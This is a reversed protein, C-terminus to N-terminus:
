DEFEGEHNVRRLAKELLARSLAKRYEASARIDSGVQVVKEMLDCADKSVDKLNKGMLFEEVARIRQSIMPRSGVVIRADKITQGDLVIRLGLNLTAIDFNSKAFKEFVAIGDSKPVEVETIISGKLSKTVYEQLSIKSFKGDYIEVNSDLIMFITVIDSWGLKFAISGGLTAMNRIQTSGIEKISNKILNGNLSALNPNSILDALKVNAGIKFLNGHDEIHNLGVSKLDVLREVSSVKLQAVMLGGSVYLSGPMQGMEYASQITSPKLYEKIDLM